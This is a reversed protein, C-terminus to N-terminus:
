SLAPEFCTGIWSTYVCSVEPPTAANESALESESMGQSGGEILSRLSTMQNIADHLWTNMAM